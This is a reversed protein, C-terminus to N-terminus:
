KPTYEEQHGNPCTVVVPDTPQRAPDADRYVVSGSAIAELVLKTVDVGCVPCAYAM